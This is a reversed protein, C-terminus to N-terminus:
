RVGGFTIIGEFHGGGVRGASAMAKRGLHCITAARPAPPCLVKRVGHHRRRLAEASKLRAGRARILVVLQDASEPEARPIKDCGNTIRIPHLGLSCRAVCT